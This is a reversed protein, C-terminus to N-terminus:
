RRQRFSANGGGFGQLQVPPLGDREVAMKSARTRVSACEPANINVGRRLLLEMRRSFNLEMWLRFYKANASNDSTAPDPVEGLAFAHEHM